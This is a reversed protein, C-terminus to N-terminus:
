VQGSMGLPPCLGLFGLNGVRFEFSHSTSQDPVCLGKPESPDKQEEVVGPESVWAGWEQQGQFCPQIM